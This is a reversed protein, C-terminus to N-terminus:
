GASRTHLREGDPNFISVIEAPGPGTASISHPTRTDFEAAEGTELVLESEGLVLRVRGSLVYFWEFGDHVRPAPAEDVAPYTVKYTQVPSDERTLPAVVHGHRRTPARRVRPDAPPAVLDDIRIGLMRTLPVLLELSAQRKGAELRSLTSASIGARSALDDLTWGKAQRAARLRPGVRQTDTM